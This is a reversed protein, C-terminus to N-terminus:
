SFFISSKRINLVDYPTNELFLSINENVNSSKESLFLLERIKLSM